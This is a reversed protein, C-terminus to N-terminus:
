QGGQVSAGGRLRKQDGHDDTQSGRGLRSSLSSLASGSTGLPVWTAQGLPPPPPTHARRAPRGVPVGLLKQLGSTGAPLRVPLCACPRAPRAGYEQPQGAAGVEGTNSDWETHSVFAGGGQFAKRCPPRPEPGPLLPRNPWAAKIAVRQTEM